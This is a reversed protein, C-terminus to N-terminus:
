IVGSAALRPLDEPAYGLQECLVNENHQGLLPAPAAPRDAESFLYPLMPYIHTGAEPHDLEAFYGRARSQESSLVEAVNRVPGAPAGEAQLRHFIEARTLGAVWEELRPQIEDRREMRQDEDKTWDAQAWEPNGMARVVGEWQHTQIATLMLYGDKAKMMGGVGGRWRPLDPDNSLRGIDVREVCMMAELKSVEVQEGRGSGRRGVIAAMTGVAATLGADYEGVYGGGVPPPRKDTRDSTYGFSTQGSAHYLNLHHARYDRYPGTKGFPTISTVVLLPNQEALREYDLELAELEGPACDEILVDTDAVLRRFIRRGAETELALTMSRKNTNLYLFLASREPHPVDGPFPGQRRSPDGAGPQELKLVDAGLDALLKGCYPAAVMRGLELVKLGELIGASV